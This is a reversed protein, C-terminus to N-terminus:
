KGIQTWASTHPTLNTYDRRRYGHQGVRDWHYQKAETDHAIILPVGIRMLYNVVGFRSKGHGDVFAVDFPEPPLPIALFAWPGLALRGSHNVGPITKILHDQVKHFWEESQMEISMVYSCRQVLFPTSHLGCGFEIARSGAPVLRELIPLHSGYPDPATM